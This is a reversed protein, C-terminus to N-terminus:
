SQQVEYELHIGDNGSPQIPGGAISTTVTKLQDLEYRNNAESPRLPQTFSEIDAYPGDVGNGNVKAASSSKSGSGNIRLLNLRSSFSFKLSALRSHYHRFTKAASPM